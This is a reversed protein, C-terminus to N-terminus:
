KVVKNKINGKIASLFAGIDRISRKYSLGILLLLAVAAAIKVFVPADIQVCTITVAM